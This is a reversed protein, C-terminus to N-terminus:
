ASSADIQEIHVFLVTASEAYGIIKDYTGVADAIKGATDSLYHNDGPTMGSYGSVPGFVCVTVPETIVISTEGDNSAVAIGIPRALVGDAVNGDAPDVFGDSSLSVLQGVTITGGAVYRRLVSGNHVLARINAATLSIDAM